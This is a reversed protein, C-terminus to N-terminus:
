GRATTARRTTSAHGFGVLNGQPLCPPRFPGCQPIVEAVNGSDDLREVTWSYQRGPKSQAPTSM